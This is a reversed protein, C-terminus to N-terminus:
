DTAGYIQIGLIAAPCPSATSYFPNRSGRAIQQLVDEDMANIATIAVPALALTTAPVEGPPTNETRSAVAIALRVEQPPGKLPWDLRQRWTRLSSGNKLTPVLHCLADDHSANGVPCCQTAHERFRFANRSIGALM